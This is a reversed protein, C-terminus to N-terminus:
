RYIQLCIGHTILEMFYVNCECYSSGFLELYTYPLLTKLLNNCCGKKTTRYYVIPETQSM